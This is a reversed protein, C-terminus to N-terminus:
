MENICKQLEKVMAVEHLFLWDSNMTLFSLHGHANSCSKYGKPQEMFRAKSYVALVNDRMTVFGKAVEVLEKKAVEKAEGSALDYKELALVLKAPFALMENTQEYVELTYRNDTAHSMAIEIQKKIQEYNSQMTRAAAIKKRNSKVKSWEGVKDKAPLDILKFNTPVQYSPRRRGSDVLLSDFPNAQEELTTLFDMEGNCLGFERQSHATIFEEPSRSNPNWSFEGLAAFGREVTSWHPSGDDWCTALIGVYNNQASLASFAKINAARSLPRPLFPCAADAAATASMVQLGAKGYWELLKIHYPGTPDGYNWRMYVCEKPFLSKNAELHETTWSQDSKADTKGKRLYGWVNGHKLPMDDWFIPTRGHAVAFDCVKQLWAMQLEFHSKGTAKCRECVGISRVEDGGIHLYKGDPMAELADRYLDFQIEYTKPNTSCCDRDKTPVERIEPFHKLFFGAHGIGQVLPSIEIHREKAYRSIAQMEQETIANPSAVEPRRTYKLKDEIEWIIANVKYQALKDILEYYYRISSLHHKVDFHVARYSLAPYDSINLQPIDIGKDLSDRMLQNLTACGYFLGAEGRSKIVIGEKTVCLTYGDPSEPTGEQSIELSIGVQGAQKYRPLRSLLDGMVPYQATSSTIFKIQAWSLGDSHSVNVNQPQPLLQFKADLEAAVAQLGLAAFLSLFLTKM